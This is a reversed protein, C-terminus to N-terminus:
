HIILSLAQYTEKLFAVYFDWRLEGDWSARCIQSEPSYCCNKSLNGIQLGEKSIKCKGARIIM